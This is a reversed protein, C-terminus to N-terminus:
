GKNQVAQISAWGTGQEAAPALSNGYCHDIRMSAPKSLLYTDFSISTHEGTGDGVIQDKDVNM